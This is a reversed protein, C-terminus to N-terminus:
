SKGDGAEFVGNPALSAHAVGVRAPARGAGRQYLLPVDMSEALVDGEGTRGRLLLARLIASYATLGTAIDCISVVVRAPSDPTGIVSCLGAEAQVLLDYAKM